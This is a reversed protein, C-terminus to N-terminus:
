CPAFVNDYIAKGDQVTVSPFREAITGAFQAIHIEAFDEARTNAPYVLHVAQSIANDLYRLAQSVAV